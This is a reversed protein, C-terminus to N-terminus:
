RININLGRFCWRSKEEVGHWHHWKAFNLRLLFASLLLFFIGTKPSGRLLAAPLCQPKAPSSLTIGKRRDAFEKPPMLLFEVPKPQNETTLNTAYHRLHHWAEANSSRSPRPALLRYRRHEQHWGRSISGWFLYCRQPLVSPAQQQNRSLPVHKQGSFLKNQKHKVLTGVM